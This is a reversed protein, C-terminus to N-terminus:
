GSVGKREREGGEGWVCGVGRERREQRGSVVWFRWCRVLM